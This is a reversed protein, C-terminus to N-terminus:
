HKKHGHHHSGGPASKKATMFVVIDGAKEFSLTLPYREDAIIQEQLDMFMLHYGGPELVVAGAAPIELGTEIERMKMVDGDMKMEHVENRVAFPSSVSILRDSMGNTNTIKMYGASVGHHPPTARVWADSVELGKHHIMEAHASAIITFSFICALITKLM